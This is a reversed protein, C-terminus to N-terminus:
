LPRLGLEEALALAQQHYSEAQRLEPPDAHAAIEALLRLAYAEHGRENHRRALNLASRAHDLADAQRGAVFYAESLYALRLAQADRRGGAGGQEVARELLSTGENVRGSLAYGYGLYAAVWPVHYAINADEVTQLSRELAPLGRGFDGQQVYVHG